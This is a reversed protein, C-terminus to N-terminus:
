AATARVIVHSSKGQDESLQQSQSTMSCITVIAMRLEESLKSSSTKQGVCMASEVKQVEPTQISSLGKIEESVPEEVLTKFLMMNNIKKALQQAETYRNSRCTGSGVNSSICIRDTKFDKAHVTQPSRGLFLAEQSM